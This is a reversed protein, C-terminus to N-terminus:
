LRRISEKIVSPTLPSGPHVTVLGTLEEYSVQYPSSVQFSVSEIVPFEKGSVAEEYSPYAPVALFLVALYGLIRLRAVWGDITTM